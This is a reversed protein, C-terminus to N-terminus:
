WQFAKGKLSQLLLISHPSLVLTSVPLAVARASFARAETQGAWGNRDVRKDLVLVTKVPKTFNHCSPEESQMRASNM